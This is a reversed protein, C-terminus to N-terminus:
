NLLGKRYSGPPQGFRARFVRCFHSQDAYGLELAIEGITLENAALLKAASELRLSQLYEGVSQGFHSRFEKALHAPHVGANRGLEVLSVNTLYDAALQDRVKLLWRPPRRDRSPRSLKALLSVVLGECSIISLPDQRLFEAHILAAVRACDGRVCVGTPAPGFEAM